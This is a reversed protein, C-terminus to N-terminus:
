ICNMRMAYCTAFLLDTGSIMREKSIAANLAYNLSSKFVSFAVVDLPQPNGSTHAPLDYVIIKNQSFLELVQLSMHSKYGDYILIM